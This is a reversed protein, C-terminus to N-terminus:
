SPARVGGRARGARCLPAEGAGGGKAGGGSVVAVKATMDFLHDYMEALRRELATILLFSITYFQFHVQMLYM